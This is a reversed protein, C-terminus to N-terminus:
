EDDKKSVKLLDSDGSDNQLRLAADVFADWHLGTSSNVPLKKLDDIGFALTTLPHAVSDGAGIIEELFDKLSTSFAKVVEVDQGIHFLRDLEEIFQKTQAATMVPQQGSKKRKRSPFAANHAYSYKYCEFDLRRTFRIMFAEACQRAYLSQKMFNFHAEIMDLRENTMALDTTTIELREHTVELREKTMALDTTTIELREKTMALDTKTSALETKLAAIEMEYLMIQAKLFDVDDEIPVPLTAHRQAQIRLSTVELYLERLRARLYEVDSSLLDPEAMASPVGLHPLVRLPRKGVCAPVGLHPLVRLPRKGM